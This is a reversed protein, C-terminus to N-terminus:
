EDHEQIVATKDMLAVIVDYMDKTVKGIQRLTAMSELSERKTTYKSM